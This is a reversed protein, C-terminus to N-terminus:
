IDLSAFSLIIQITTQTTFPLRPLLIIILRRNQPHATCTATLLQQLLLIQRFTGLGFLNWDPLEVFIKFVFAALNAATFQPTTSIRTNNQLLLLPLLLDCLIINAVELFM